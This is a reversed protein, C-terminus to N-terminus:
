NEKMWDRYAKFSAFNTFMKGNVRVCWRTQGNVVMTEGCIVKEAEVIKSKKTIPHTITIKM